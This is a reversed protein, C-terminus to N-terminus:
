ARAELAKNIRYSERQYQRTRERVRSQALYRRRAEVRRADQRRGLANYHERKLAKNALVERRHCTKCNHMRGDRCTPHRYFMRLTKVVHCTRCPKRRVVRV